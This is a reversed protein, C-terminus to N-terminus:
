KTKIKEILEQMNNCKIDDNKFIGTDHWFDTPKCSLKFRALLTDRGTHLDNFWRRILCVCLATLQKVQEPLETYKCYLTEEVDDLNPYIVTVNDVDVIKYKWTYTNSTSISPYLKVTTRQKLPSLVKSKLININFYSFFNM